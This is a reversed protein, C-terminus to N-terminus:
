PCSRDPVANGARWREEPIASCRKFMCLGLRQPYFRQAAELAKLSDGDVCGCTTRFFVNTTVLAKEITLYGAPVFMVKASLAVFFLFRTALCLCELGAVHQASPCYMLRKSSTTCHAKYCAIAWVRLGFAQLHPLACPRFSVNLCISTSQPGTNTALKLLFWKM